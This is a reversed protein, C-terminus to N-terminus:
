TRFKDLFDGKFTKEYSHATKRINGKKNTVGDVEVEPLVSEVVKSVQKIKNKLQNGM